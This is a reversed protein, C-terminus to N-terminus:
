QSDSLRKAARLSLFRDKQVNELITPAMSVSQTLMTRGYSKSGIGTPGQSRTARAFKNARPSESPRTRCLSCRYVLKDAGGEVRSLYTRLMDVLHLCPVRVTPKEPPAYRRLM